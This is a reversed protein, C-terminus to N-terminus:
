SGSLCLTLRTDCRMNAEYVFSPPSVAVDPQTQTFPPADSLQTYSRVDDYSTSRTASSTSTSPTAARVPTRERATGQRATSTEGRGPVYQRPQQGAVAANYCGLRMSLKRCTRRVTQMHVLTLCTSGCHNLFTMTVYSTASTNTVRAFAALPGDGPAARGLAVGAENSLWAIQEGQFLVLNNYWLLPQM